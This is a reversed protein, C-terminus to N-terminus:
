RRNAYGRVAAGLADLRAREDTTLGDTNVVVPRRDRMRFVVSAPLPTVEEVADWAVTDVTGNLREISVGGPGAEIVRAGHRTASWTALGYNVLAVVACIGAGVPWPVHPYARLMVLGVVLIAVSIALIFRRERRRSPVLRFPASVIALSDPAQVDPRQM